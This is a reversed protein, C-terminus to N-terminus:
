EIEGYNKAAGIIEVRSLGTKEEIEEFYGGANNDEELLETFTVIDSYLDDLEMGEQEAFNEIIQAIEEPTRPNQIGEM